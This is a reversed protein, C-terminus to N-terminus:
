REEDSSEQLWFVSLVKGSAIVLLEQLKGSDDKTLSHLTLFPVVVYQLYRPGIMM